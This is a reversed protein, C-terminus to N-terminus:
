GHLQHRLDLAGESLLEGHRAEELGWGDFLKRAHKASVLAVAANGGDDLDLGFARTWRQEQDVTNAAAHKPSVCIERSM